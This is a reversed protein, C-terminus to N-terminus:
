LNAGNASWYGWGRPAGSPNTRYDLNSSSAEVSNLSADAPVLRILKYDTGGASWIYAYYGGRGDDPISPIASMYTPVLGPINLTGTSGVTSLGRTTGTSPYKDNDIYYLQIAKNIQSLDSQMASYNARERMGSFANLTLAALIGIVVIVILLEVITFGRNSTKMLNTKGCILM